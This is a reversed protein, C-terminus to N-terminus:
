RVPRVPVTVTLDGAHEFRLTLTVTEDAVLQRTLGMLMIHDGGRQFVHIAGAPIEVGDKLPLMKMVGNADEKSTHLMARKAADTSVAVLRDAADGENTVMMYIAGSKASATTALAYGDEVKMVDSADGAHAPLAPLAFLLCAAAARVNSKFSM